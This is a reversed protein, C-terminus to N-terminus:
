SKTTATKNHSRRSGVASMSVVGCMFIHSVFVVPVLFSLFYDVFDRKRERKKRKKGVKLVRM